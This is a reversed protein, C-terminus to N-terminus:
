EKELESIEERLRGYGRALWSLYGIHIVWTIIYASYLFNM